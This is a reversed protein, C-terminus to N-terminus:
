ASCVEKEVQSVKVDITPGKTVAVDPSETRRLKPQLTSAPTPSGLGLCDERCESARKETLPTEKNKKPNLVESDKTHKSQEDVVVPERVNRQESEAASKLKNATVVESISTPLRKKKIPEKTGPAKQEICPQEINAQGTPKEPKLEDAKIPEEPVSEKQVKLEDIQNALNPSQKRESSQSVDPHPKLECPNDVVVGQKASPENKIQEEAVVPSTAKSPKKVTSVVKPISKESSHKQEDPEDIIGAKQVSSPPMQNQRNCNAICVANVQQSTKEPEEIPPSQKIEQADLVEAVEKRKDVDVPIPKEMSPGDNPEKKQVSPETTVVEQQLSSENPVEAIAQQTPKLGSCEADCISNQVSAEEPKDVIPVQKNEELHLVETAQKHESTADPTVVKVERPGDLNHEQIMVSSMQTPPEVTVHASKRVNAEPNNEVMLDPTAVEQPLCKYTGDFHVVSKKRQSRLGGCDKRCECKEESKQPQPVESNGKDEIPQKVLFPNGIEAEDATPVEIVAVSTKKPFKSVELDSKLVTHYEPKPVRLESGKTQNTVVESQKSPEDPKVILPNPVQLCEDSPQPVVIPLELGAADLNSEEIEMSSVQKPVKPLDLQSKEVTHLEPKTVPLEHLVGFDLADLTPEEILLSSAQRQSEPPELESKEVTHLEPKSVPPGFHDSSKHNGILSIKGVEQPSPPDESSRNEERAQDVVTPVEVGSGNMTVVGLVVSTPKPTTLHEVESKLITHEEPKPVRLESTESGRKGENPQDVVDPLEVNPTDMPPERVVVTSAQELSKSPELDSKQVIHVEPKPVRLETGNSSQKEAIPVDLYKAAPINVASAQPLPKLGTCGKMCKGVNPKIEAPESLETVNSQQIDIAFKSKPKFVAAQETEFSKTVSLEDTRVLVEEVPGNTATDVNADGHAKTISETEEDTPPIHQDSDRKITEEPVISLRSSRLSRLRSTEKSLNTHEQKSNTFAANIIKEVNELSALKARLDDPIVPVSAKGM